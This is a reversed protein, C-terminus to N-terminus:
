ILILFGDSEHRRIDIQIGKLVEPLLATCLSICPHHYRHKGGDRRNGEIFGVKNYL